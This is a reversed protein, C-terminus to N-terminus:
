GRRSPWEVSFSGSALPLARWRGARPRHRVVCSHRVGRSSRSSKSSLAKVIEKTARKADGDNNLLGIYPDGPRYCAARDSKWLQDFAANVSISVGTLDGDQQEFLERYFTAQTEVTARDPGKWPYNVLKLLVPPRFGEAARLRRVNNVVESADSQPDVAEDFPVQADPFMWDGITLLRTDEAYNRIPETTSVPLRTRFRLYGMTKALPVYNYRRDNLGNQGVAYGDVYHKRAVAAAIEAPDNPNWIGMIVSLGRGKALEPIDRRADTSGFTIVGGYGARSIWDLEEEMESLTLETCSCASCPCRNFQRPDYGIWGKGKGYIGYIRDDARTEVLIHSFYPGLFHYYDYRALAVLAALSFLLVAWSCLMRVNERAPMTDRQNQKAPRFGVKRYSRWLRVSLVLVLVSLLLILILHVLVVRGYWQRLENAKVIIFGLSALSTVAPPLAVILEVLRERRSQRAPDQNAQSNATPAV